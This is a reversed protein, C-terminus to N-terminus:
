DEDGASILAEFLGQANVFGLEAGRLILTGNQDELTQLLKVPIGTRESIDSLNSVRGTLAARPPPAPLESPSDDEYSRRNVTISGLDVPEFDGRLAYNRPVPAGYTRNPALGAFRRDRRVDLRGFRVPPANRVLGIVEDKPASILDEVRLLPEAIGM